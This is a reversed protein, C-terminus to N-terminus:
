LIYNYIEYLIYIYISLSKIVCIVYEHTHFDDFLSKADLPRSRCATWAFSTWPLSSLSPIGHSNKRTASIPLSSKMYCSCASGSGPIVGSDYRDYSDCKPQAVALHMQLAPSRSCHPARAAWNTSSLPQLISYASASGIWIKQFFHFPLEQFIWLLSKYQKQRRKSQLPSLMARAPTQRGLSVVTM